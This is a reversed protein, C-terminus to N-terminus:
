RATINLDRELKTTLDKKVSDFNLKIRLDAPYAGLQKQVLLSYDEAVREPLVYRVTLHREENIPVVLFGGFVTRKSEATVDTAGGFGQASILQSGEPVYIRMYTRYNSILPNLKGGHAYHIKLDAVLKGNERKVSYDYSKTIVPETKYGALNADVIMLTDREYDRMKADWGAEAILSQLKPNDFYFAAHRTEALEAVGRALELNQPMSLSYVRDQLAEALDGMVDKRQLWPTNTWYFDLEVKKELEDIVNEKTYITNDLNVPGTVALVSRLIETTVTVV